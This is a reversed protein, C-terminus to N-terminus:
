YLILPLVPVYTLREKYCLFTNLMVLILMFKIGMHICTYSARNQHWYIFQLTCFSGVHHMCWKAAQRQHSSPRPSAFGRSTYVESHRSTSPLSETFWWILVCHTVCVVIYVLVHELARICKVPCYSNSVDSCQQLKKVAEYEPTITQPFFCRTKIDEYDAKYTHQPFFTCNLAIKQSHILSIIIKLFRFLVVTWIRVESKMEEVKQCHLM